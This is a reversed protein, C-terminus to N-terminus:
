YLHRYYINTILQVCTNTHWQTQVKPLQCRPSRKDMGEFRPKKVTGFYYVLRKVKVTM